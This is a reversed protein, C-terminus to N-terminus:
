AKDEPSNPEIKSLYNWLRKTNPGQIKKVNRLLTIDIDFSNIDEITDILSLRGSDIHPKVQHHPLRGWGLGNLILKEKMSMDTTFWQKMDKVAGLILRQDANASSKVIIQPYKFLDHISGDSNEYFDSSIVPVMSTKLIPVSEIDPHPKLNVGIAFDIEKEVLKRHLEDLMDVNLNLSTTIHPEMFHKFISSIEELPCIADLSINIEAEIGLGLEKGFLNLDNFKELAPLTKKYFAMGEDTLTPRYNDRNFIKIGFEQELKKIAMSLSPQSKFLHQSAAKFSGHKIIAELTVLQDYTM